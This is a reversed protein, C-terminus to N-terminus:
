TKVDTNVTSVDDTGEEAVNYKSRVQMGIINCMNLTNDRHKATGVTAFLKKRFHFVRLRWITLSNEIIVGARSQSM